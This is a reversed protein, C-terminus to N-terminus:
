SALHQDILGEITAMLERNKSESLADTHPDSFKRQDNDYYQGTIGDLEPDVSLRVLIDAGIGLDHGEHGYAEKVMKSGLFSAPNVAIISPGTDSWKKALALSWMTIALKSQAYAEGDGLSRQGRLADDDVPAQAASSLNIVRATAGLQPQLRKTLLYPAITNVVFRVDLGDATTPSSTKFVGANNILVDVKDFDTAVADALAVVDQLSSLDAQYTKLTGVGPIGSVLEVASELKAPNRGHLLLTHGAPALRKVTELGIGDTAGTMLITKTM